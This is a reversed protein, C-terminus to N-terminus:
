QAPVIRWMHLDHKIRGAETGAREGHGVYLDARVNGKIAGGTDLAAVLRQYSSFADKLSGADAELWFLDGLDHYAPDVAIASGPPLPLGAAGLPETQDPQIAFFGYRPNANM